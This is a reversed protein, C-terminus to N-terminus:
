DYQESILRLQLGLKRLVKNTHKMHSPLLEEGDTDITGMTKLQEVLDMDTINMRFELDDHFTSTKGPNAFYTM